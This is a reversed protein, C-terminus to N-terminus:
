KMLENEALMDEILIGYGKKPNSIFVHTVAGILKNNQVIPSGSMGQVIGGTKQLLREDTVRLVLGKSHNNNAYDVKEIEIDYSDVKGDIECFIVAKGKVVEKKLAIECIEGESLLSCGKAIKGYIGRATNKEVTGIFNEETRRIFGSMEGPNGATGPIVRIINAYYCSGTGVAVLGGTDVDTIGHGLAGFGGDPLIYTLTGIGQTDDRVWAGIKYSGDAGLVPRIETNMLEGNRRIQLQLTKGNSNKVLEALDEKNELERNDAKVLYDGSKIRNKCPECVSKDAATVTTTGLVLIGKTEVHIGIASGGVVVSQPTIADIKVKQLPFIGFLKVTLTATTKENAKVLFSDSLDIKVTKDALPEHNIELVGVADEEMELTASFPFKMSINEEEGTRIRIKEPIQKRYYYYGYGLLVALNIVLAVVLCRRYNKMAKGKRYFLVLFSGLFPEKITHIM